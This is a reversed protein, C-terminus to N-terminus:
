ALLGVHTDLLGHLAEARKPLDALNGEKLSETFANFLSWINRGELADHRPERWEQLGPPIFRNSCVGVDTARIILDHAEIDTIEAEKYAAIRKDQDHWKALLLGISGPPPFPSSKRENM